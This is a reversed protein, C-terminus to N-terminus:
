SLLKVVLRELLLLVFKSFVGLVLTSLWTVPVMRWCDRCLLVLGHEADCNRCERRRM